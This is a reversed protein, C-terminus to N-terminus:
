MNNHTGLGTCEKLALLRQRTTEHNNNNGNASNSKKRAPKNNSNNNNNDNQSNSLSSPSLSLSSSPSSLSPSSLSLNLYEPWMFVAYAQRNSRGVRGRLQYLSALGFMHANEVIVTNVNSVDLGSEIM